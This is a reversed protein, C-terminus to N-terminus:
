GNDDESATKTTSQKLLAAVDDSAREREARAKRLMAFAVSEEYEAESLRRLAARVRENM